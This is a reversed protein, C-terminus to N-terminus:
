PTRWPVFTTAPAGGQLPHPYTYAVYTNTHNGCSEPMTNLALCYEKDGNSHQSSSSLIANDGKIYNSLPWQPTYGQGIFVDSNGSCADGSLSSNYCKDQPGNNWLYLPVSPQALGLAVGSGRGIQDLCPWGCAEVNGDYSQEAGNGYNPCPTGGNCTTIGWCNGYFRDTFDMGGAVSSARYLQLAAITNSGYGSVKNNYIVGTGNEQFVIPITALSNGNLNNNYIEFKRSGGRGLASPSGGEGTHSYFGTMGTVTNHRFVAAAGAVLDNFPNNAAANTFTSDEIYVAEDSGLNLALAWSTSGSFEQNGDANVLSHQSFGIDDAHKTWQNNDILGWSIGYVFLLRMSAVATPFYLKVRGIRWGMVPISVALSNVQIIETTGAAVSSETITLDLLKWNSKKVTTGASSTGGSSATTNTFLFARASTPIITVDIGRGQITIDKDTVSVHTTWPTATGSTLYVTDGTQAYTTVCEQIDAQNLTPSAQSGPYCTTGVRECDGAFCPVVICFMIIAVWYLKTALRSMLQYDM